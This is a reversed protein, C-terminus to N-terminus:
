DTNARRELEAGQQRQGRGAKGDEIFSPQRNQKSRGHSNRVIAKSPRADFTRDIIAYDMIGDRAQLEWSPAMM